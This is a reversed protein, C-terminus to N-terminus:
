EGLVVPLNKLKENLQQKYLSFNVKSDDFVGSPGKFPLANNRKKTICGIAINTYGPPEQLNISELNCNWIISNAITWGHGTGYIGRNIFSVDRGSCSDVLLGTAWRMHPMITRNLTCNYIVNPGKAGMTVISFNNTGTFSSNSILTQSSNNGIVIDSAAGASTDLSITRTCSVKDITIRKTNSTGIAETFNICSINQIWGDSIGNMNIFNIGGNITGTYSEAKATLNEIGINFIRNFTFPQITLNDFFGSDISDTFPINVTITNGDIKIIKREITIVQGEKIWVQPAGNRVLKDMGLSSLWKKTVTKNINITNGVLLGETSALVLTNSGIPVYTNKINIIIRSLQMKNPNTINFVDRFPNAKAYIITSPGSGRIVIGTSSINITGNINFSGSSLLIAGRLELPLSSIKNIKEQLKITDDLGNGSPSMTDVVKVSTNSIANGEAYGVSSFDSLIDGNTNIQKYVLKGNILSIYKTNINPSLTTTINSVVKTIKSMLTPTSTPISTLQIAKTTPTTTTTQIPKTTTTTTTTTTTQLVQTLVLLLIVIILILVLIFIYEM